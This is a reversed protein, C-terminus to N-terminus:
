QYNALKKSEEPNHLKSAPIRIEVNGFGKEKFAKEDIKMFQELGIKQSGSGSPTFLKINPDDGRTDLENKLLKYQAKEDLGELLKTPIRSMKKMIEISESLYKDEKPESQNSPTGETQGSPESSARRAKAKWSRITGTNVSPFAKYYEANDLDPNENHYAKFVNFTISPKSVENQQEESNDNENSM